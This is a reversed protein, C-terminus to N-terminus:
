CAAGVRHRRSSASVSSLSPRKPSSRAAIALTAPVLIPALVNPLIHRLLIRRHPNGVARAAEIYDEHKIALVQGRTLRTFIPPQAIGITIMANTLNPGLFAALAIALIQFPIALMADIMRM